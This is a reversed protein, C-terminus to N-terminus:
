LAFVIEFHLRLIPLATAAAATATAAPRDPLGSPVAALQGRPQRGHQLFLLCPLCLLPM